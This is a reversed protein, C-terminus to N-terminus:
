LVDEVGQVHQTSYEKVYDCAQSFTVGLKKAFKRMFGETKNCEHCVVGRIKGTDHCHDVHREYAKNILQEQCMVCRGQQNRIMREKDETTMNYMKKYHHNADLKKYHAPNDKRHQKSYANRKDKHKQHFERARARMEDRNTEYRAKRQAALNEKNDERYQKHQEKIKEKNADYYKRSQAAVAKRNKRYYERNAKKIKEKNKAYKKQNRETIVEPNQKAFTSARQRKCKKCWYSLGDSFSKDKYFEGLEKEVGCKTCTKM